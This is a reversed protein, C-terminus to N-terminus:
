LKRVKSLIGGKMSQGIEEVKEVERGKGSKGSKGSERKKRLFKFPAPPGSFFGWKQCLYVGLFHILPFYRYDRKPSV